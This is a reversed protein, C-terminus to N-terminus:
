PATVAFSGKFTKYLATENQLKLSAGSISAGEEGSGLKFIQNIQPAPFFSGAVFPYVCLHGAAAKPEAATGSCNSDSPNPTTMFHVHSGDLEASLPIPFSLSVVAEGEGFKEPVMLAAYGGTETKGSGLTATCCSGTQGTPGTPGTAGTAGTAGGQGTAGALGTPGVPGQPGTVGPAGAFKKAIKAVERKQKGTLSSSAAYAGGFMALVLLLAALVGPVGFRNKLVSFM